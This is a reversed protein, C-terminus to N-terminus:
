KGFSTFPHLNKIMSDLGLFLIAVNPSIEGSQSGSQNILKGLLECRTVNKTSIGQSEMESFTKDIDSDLIVYDGVVSAVGDLKFRLSEQGFIDHVVFFLICIIQTYYYIKCIFNVNYM